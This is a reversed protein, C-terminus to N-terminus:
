ARSATCVIFASATGPMGEDHLRDFCEWFGWRERKEMVADLADVV